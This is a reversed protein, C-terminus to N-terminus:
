WYWYVSSSPELPLTLHRSVDAGLEAVAPLLLVEADADGRVDALTLMLPAVEPGSSSTVVTFSTTFVVIPQSSSSLVIKLVLVFVLGLDDGGGGLVRVVDVRDVVEVVCVSLVVVLVDLVHVVLESVEEIGGGSSDVTVEVVM